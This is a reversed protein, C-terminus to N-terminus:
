IKLLTVIDELEMGESIMTKILKMCSKLETNNEVMFTSYLEENVDLRLEVVKATTRFGEIRNIPTYFTYMCNGYSQNTKYCLEGMGRYFVGDKRHHFESTRFPSGYKDFLYMHSPLVENPHSILEIKM